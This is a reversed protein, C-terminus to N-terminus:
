STKANAVVKIQGNEVTEIVINPHAQNHDNFKAPGWALQIDVKSLGDRIQQPSSGGGLEIAKALVFAANYPGASDPPPPTGYKKQYASDFDPEMGLAWFDAGTIGNALSADGLATLFETSLFGRGFLQYNASSSRIQRVLTAADRSSMIMLIADPNKAQVASLLPRFDALGPTYYQADLFKVGAKPLAAQYAAVGGRGFDDNEAIAVVSTAKQAIYGSLGASIVTDDANIRFVWENGGVGSQTSITPNSADSAILPINATKAQAMQALTAGSCSSFLAAAGDSILKNVATVAQGPDCADDAQVLKLQRGGAGGKANVADIGLQLGNLINQGIYAYTGSLPASLGVTIPGTDTKTQSSSAPGHCAALPTAVLLALALIAAAYAGRHPHAITMARIEEVTTRPRATVCAPAQIRGRRGEDSGDSISAESPPRQTPYNSASLKM